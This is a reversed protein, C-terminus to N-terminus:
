SAPTCTPTASYAKAFRLGEAALKDLAPTKLQPNVAGLADFRMQDAMMFLINPRATANQTSALMALAGIM